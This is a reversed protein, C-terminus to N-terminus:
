ETEIMKLVAIIDNIPARKRHDAELYAYRIMGKKDIVYTATVPLENSEDGNYNQLGIGKKYVEALANTLKYVLGYQKAIKNGVDSLVDFQLENKETTSLSKDPLEPTLALLNAGLHKFELLNNQLYQLTLNCYPCWGGRYWTLVVPGKDLMSQLNTCEGLANKLTFDISSDGENIANEKFHTAIVAAINKDGMEKRDDTATTEWAALKASLADQLQTYELKNM